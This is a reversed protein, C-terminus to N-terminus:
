KNHCSSYRNPDGGYETIHNCIFSIGQSVDEVMDSITGQPFNRFGLFTNNIENHVYYNFM